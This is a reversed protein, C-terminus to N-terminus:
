IESEEDLLQKLAKMMDANEPKDMEVGMMIEQTEDSAVEDATRNNARRAIREAESQRAQKHYWDGFITLCAIILIFLIATVADRTQNYNEVANSLLKTILM